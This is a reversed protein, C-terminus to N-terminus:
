TGPLTPRVPRYFPNTLIAMSFLINHKPVHQLHTSATGAHPFNLNQGNSRWTRLSACGEDAVVTIRVHAVFWRTSPIPGYIVTLALMYHYWLLLTPGHPFGWWSLHNPTGGCFCDYVGSTILYFPREAMSISWFHVLGLTLPQLTVSVLWVHCSPLHLYIM